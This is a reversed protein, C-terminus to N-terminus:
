GLVSAPAPMELWFERLEGYPNREIRTNRDFVMTAREAEQFPPWDPIQPNNPDATNAFAV